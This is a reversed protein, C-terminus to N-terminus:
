KKLYKDLWASFRAWQDLVTEKAIQGHDEYPYMVLQAPKGLAELATFMRESNIPATGINQDDLGHYMLLAGTMQDAYLLPSVELYTSRAEWLQRPDSQFGFPTLPRLYCGDGAIGCKFFPTNVMANATSFAGYSHGGCALRTRDVLNRRDLEDIIASLSNRLQPVYTDNMRAALAVIPVDPEIVAYGLRILAAKNSGGVQNFLNKNLNRKSRDYLDQSEFESPYIWLLAPPRNAKAPSTVKVQFHIGDARTVTITERRALTLDPAFDVNKTLPIEQKSGLDVAFSQPVMVTSQRTLLLHGAAPELITATEYKDTASQWFRERKGDVLSVKELFPRPALKEPDEYSQTGSLYATDGSVLVDGSSDSVLSSPERDEGRTEKLVVTKGDKVTILKSGAPAPPGGPRPTAAGRGGRGGAPAGAAPATTTLFLTKGNPGFRVSSITDETDYISKETDKAFPYAWQMVRDLRKGDVTGNRLFVLSGDPRWALGRRTNSAPSQAAQEDDEGAAGTRLGQKRLETLEKGNADVVIEREPFSSLPVINSYPRELLTIRFARGDPSADLSEIAMPKGIEQLSGSPVSLTALQGTAFYDLLTEDYGTKLVSPYTRLSTKREDSLQLRPAPAVTPEAPMPKQGDPRFVAVIASGNGTWDWTTCLTPMLPRKGVRRSFGKTPDAVFIWSANEEHVLFGLTRGDPSWKPDSVRANAPLGVATLAGTALNMIRLGAASRTTFTRARTAGTDIMGGALNVYPKALAALPPPGDRDVVIAWKGDPSPNTPTVNTWWPALAADLIPKPPTLYGPVGNAVQTLLLVPAIFV